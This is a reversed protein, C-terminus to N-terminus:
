VVKYGKNWQGVNIDVYWGVDFYDTMIDSNNHNAYGSGVGHMAALLEKYFNAIETEGIENMNDECHYPNVQFNDTIEYYRGWSRIQEMMKNYKNAAGILDLAGEKLNVVLSSHNNVAITGKMGYKKLVAKIQPAIAKKKTQCMYAM